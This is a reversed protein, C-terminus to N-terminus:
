KEAEGLYPHFAIKLVQFMRFCGVFVLFIWLTTLSILVLVLRTLSMTGDALHLVAVDIAGFTLMSALEISYCRVGGLM